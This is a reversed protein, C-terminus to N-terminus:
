PQRSAVPMVTASTSSHGSRSFCHRDVIDAVDRAFIEHVLIRHGPDQHWRRILRAATLLRDM